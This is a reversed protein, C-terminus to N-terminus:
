IGIGERGVAKNWKKALSPPVKPEWQVGFHPEGQEDVGRDLDLVYRGVLHPCTPHDLGGWRDVPFTHGHTDGWVCGCPGLPPCDDREEEDRHQLRSLLPLPPPHCTPCRM